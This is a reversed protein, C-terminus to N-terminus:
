YKMGIPVSAVLYIVDAAVGNVMGFWMIRSMDACEDTYMDICMKM